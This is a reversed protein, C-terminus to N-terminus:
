FSSGPEELFAQEEETSRRGLAENRHPFRGFRAIIVRHKEAYDYWTPDDDLSKVLTVCLVQDELSESHELPLYLFLREVQSLQRDFGQEIAHRTVERAEADSAFARTDGRFLNRPVQDLMISLALCGRPSGRWVDYDGALAREYHPQLRQRVEADFDPDKVFWAKERGPAFWFDIIEAQADEESQQM